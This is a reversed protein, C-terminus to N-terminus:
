SGSAGESDGGVDGVMQGMDEWRHGVMQGMDPSRHGLKGRIRQDARVKKM